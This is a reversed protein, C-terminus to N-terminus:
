RRCGGGGALLRAFWRGESAWLESLELGAGAAIPSIEEAGVFSWPIWDSSERRGELRVRSPRSDSSPPELEVLVSGDGRLLDAVRRLLATPDGGIGINGDLLLATAWGCPLARDFISGAIVVAGRAEALAAARPSLEIGVAEVGRERLAIVHRGAGCGVDLVPGVARDLLDEEGAEPRRLWRELPLRRRSGDDGVAHLGFPEGSGACEELGAEYLALATPRGLEPL